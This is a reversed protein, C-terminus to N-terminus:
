PNYSLEKKLFILIYPKFIAPPSSAHAHQTIPVLRNYSDSLCFFCPMTKFKESFIILILHRHSTQNLVFVMFYVTTEKGGIMLGRPQDDDAQYQMYRVYYGTQKFSIEDKM